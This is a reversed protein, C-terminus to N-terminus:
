FAFCLGTKPLTSSGEIGALSIINGCTKDRMQMLIPTCSCYFVGRLDRITYTKTRLYPRTAREYNNSVQYTKVIFM